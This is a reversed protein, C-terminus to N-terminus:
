WGDRLIERVPGFGQLSRRQALVAHHRVNSTMTARASRPFNAPFQAGAIWRFGAPGRGACGRDGGPRISASEGRARRLRKTRGRDFQGAPRRAIWAARSRDRVPAGDGPGSSVLVGSNPCGYSNGARASAGASGARDVVTSWLRGFAPWAPSGRDRAVRERHSAAQGPRGPKRGRGSRVAMERVRVAGRALLLSAVNSCAILLVCGVAAAFIWLTKRVSGVEQDLFTVLRSASVAIRRIDRHWTRARHPENGGAGAPARRGAELPRLHLLWRWTRGAAYPSEPPLPAWLDYDASLAFERPMVGVIEFSVGDMSIRRGAINPDGGLHNQWFSYSLIAVMERGVRYEEPLFLRGIQPQIGLTPFFDATVRVGALRQPEGREPSTGAERFLGEWARLFGRNVAFKMLIPPSFAACDREPAPCSRELDM